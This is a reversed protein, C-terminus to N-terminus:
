LWLFRETPRIMDEKARVEVSAAAYSPSDVIAAGSLIASAIRRM